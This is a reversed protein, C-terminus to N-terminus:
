LCTPVVRGMRLRAGEEGNASLASRQFAVWLQALARTPGVRVLTYACRRAKRKMSNRAAAYETNLSCFWFPVGGGGQNGFRFRLMSALRFGDSMITFITNRSCM